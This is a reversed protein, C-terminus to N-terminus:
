KTIKHLTMYRYVLKCTKLFYQFISWHDHQQAVTPVRLAFHNFRYLRIFIKFKDGIHPYIGGHKVQRNAGAFAITGGLFAFFKADTCIESECLNVFVEDGGSGNQGTQKTLLMNKHGDGGCVNVVMLRVSKKQTRNEGVLEVREPRKDEIHEARFVANFIKDVDYRENVRARFNQRERVRSKRRQNM